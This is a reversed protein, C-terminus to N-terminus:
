GGRELRSDDGAVLGTGAGGYLAWLAQYHASDPLADKVRCTYPEGSLPIARAPDFSAGDGRVVSSTTEVKKAQKGNGKAMVEGGIRLYM